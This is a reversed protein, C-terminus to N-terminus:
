RAERGKEYAAKRIGLIKKYAWALIPKLQPWECVQGSFCGSAYPLMTTFYLEDEEDWDVRLEPSPNCLLCQHYKGAINKNHECWKEEPTPKTMGQEKNRVSKISGSMREANARGRKEM